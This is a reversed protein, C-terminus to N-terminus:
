SRGPFYEKWRTDVARATEPDCVLEKPYSPKMRADIVIPGSYCLHHRRVETRAAYIDAAPEFRTFVAWLFDPPSGAISADDTLIILQWEGFTRGSRSINM